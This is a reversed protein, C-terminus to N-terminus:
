DHFYIYVCVCTYFASKKHKFRQVFDLQFSNWVSEKVKKRAVVASEREGRLLFNKAPFHPIREQTVRLSKWILFPLRPSNKFLAPARNSGGGGGGAEWWWGKLGFKVENYPCSSFAM